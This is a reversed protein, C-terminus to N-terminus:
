GSHANHLCAQIEEWSVAGARVIAPAAGGLDVITSPTGGRSPGADFLLAIRDGLTREVDNPDAAAPAGSVNASTATVPRGVAACIARACHDAPVRVGVRGTRASVAAAMARPAPLLLTLPGPWFRDALCA